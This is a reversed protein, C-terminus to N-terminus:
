FYCAIHQGSRPVYQYTQLIYMLAARRKVCADNTLVDTHRKTLSIVPKTIEVCQSRLATEGGVGGSTSFLCSILAYIIVNGKSKKPFVIFQKPIYAQSNLLFTLQIEVGTYGHVGASWLVSYKTPPAALTSYNLMMEHPCKFVSCLDFRDCSRWWMMKNSSNSMFAVWKSLKCMFYMM